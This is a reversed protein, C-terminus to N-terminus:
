LCLFCRPYSIQVGAFFGSPDRSECLQRGFTTRNKRFCRDRTESPDQEVLSKVGFILNEAQFPGKQFPLSALALVVWGFHSSYVPKLWDAFLKKPDSNSHSLFSDCAARSHTQTRASVMWCSGKLRSPPSIGEVLRAQVEGQPALKSGSAAAESCVPIVRGQEKQQRPFWACAPSIQM